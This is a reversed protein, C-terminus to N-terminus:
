FFKLVLVLSLISIFIWLLIGYSLTKFGAQKISQLNILSGIMFLAVVMLQKSIGQLIQYVKEGQPFYTAILMTAVFGLIFYPFKYTSNEKKNFYGIFLALPFIWLTRSLKVTTAIELAQEGYQKAAGVVSSTDHIAIASWLGFQYQTLHFLHGITPFIVLAIANLVFVVAMAITIQNAKPQLVSSITAIASGGCIATGSTILLSTNKNIKLLRYFVFGLLFVSIISIFTLIFGDKSVSVAEHLNLGLGLGIIAINLLKKSYKKSFDGFENQFILGYGIGLLLAVSSEIFPFFTLLLLGFYIIRAIM